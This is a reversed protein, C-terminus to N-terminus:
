PALKLKVDGIEIVDGFELAEAREVPARNL